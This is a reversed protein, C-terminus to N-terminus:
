ITGSWVAPVNVELEVMCAKFCKGRRTQFISFHSARTKDATKLAGTIKLLASFSRQRFPFIRDMTARFIAIGRFIVANKTVVYRNNKEM